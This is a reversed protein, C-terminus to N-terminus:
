KPVANKFEDKRMKWLEFNIENITSQVSWRDDTTHMYGHNAYRYAEMLTAYKDNTMSASKNLLQGAYFSAEKGTCDRMPKNMAFDLWPKRKSWDIDDDGFDGSSFEYHNM